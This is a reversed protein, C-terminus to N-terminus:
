NLGNLEVLKLFDLFEKEGKKGKEGLNPVKPLNKNPDSMLDPLTICNMKKELAFQVRVDFNVKKLFITEPNVPKVTLKGIFQSVTLNKEKKAPPPLKIACESQFIRWCDEFHLEENMLQSHIGLQEMLMAIHNFDDFDERIALGPFYRSKIIYLLLAFQGDDIARCNGGRKIYSNPDSRNYDPTISVIKELQPFYSLTVLEGKSTRDFLFQELEVLKHRDSDWYPKMLIGFIHIKGDSIKRYNGNNLFSFNLDIITKNKLSFSEAFTVVKEQLKEDKLKGSYFFDNGM